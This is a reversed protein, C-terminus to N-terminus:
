ALKYNNQLPGSISALRVTYDPVVALTGSLGGSSRYTKGRGASRHLRQGRRPPTLCRLEGAHASEDALVSETREPHAIVPRLGAAEAHEALDVLEDVPGSFPVEMLVCDTGELLYRRPDEDLLARDPTLGFGLRLELGAIPRLAAFATRIEDERATTLPLHPWVHPTAFLVATGRRAAERCLVSGQAVTSAGDDGSPCVHSHCDVFGPAAVPSM